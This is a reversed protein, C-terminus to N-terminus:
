EFSNVLQDFIQKIRELKNYENYGSVNDLCFWLSKIISIQKNKTNFKKTILFSLHRNTETQTSITKKFRHTTQTSVSNQFYTLDPSNPKYNSQKPSIYDYNDNLCIQGCPLEFNSNENQSIPLQINNNELNLFQDDIDTLDLNPNVDQLIGM